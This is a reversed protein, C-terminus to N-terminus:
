AKYKGTGQGFQPNPPAAAELTSRSSPRGTSRTCTNTCKSTLFVFFFLLIWWASASGAPKTICVACWQEGKLSCSTVTAKDSPCWHWGTFLKWEWSQKRHLAASHLVLDGNFINLECASLIECVTGRTFWKQKEDDVFRAQVPTRAIKQMLLVEYVGAASFALITAKKAPASQSAFRHKESGNPDITLLWLSLWPLTECRNKYGYPELCTSKTWYHMLFRNRGTRGM